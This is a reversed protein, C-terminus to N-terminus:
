LGARVKGDLGRRSGNSKAEGKSITSGLGRGM